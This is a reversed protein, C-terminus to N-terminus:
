TAREELMALMIAPEGLPTSGSGSTCSQYARLM